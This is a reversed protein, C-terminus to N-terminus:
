YTVFIEAMNVTNLVYIQCCREDDKTVISM